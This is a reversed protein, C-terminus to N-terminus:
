QKKSHCSDVEKMVEENAQRLRVADVVFKECSCRKCACWVTSTQCGVRRHSDLKGFIPDHFVKMHGCTCLVFPDQESLLVVM